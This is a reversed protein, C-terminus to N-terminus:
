NNLFGPADDIINEIMKYMHKGWEEDLSRKVWECLGEKNEKFIIPFKEHHDYSGLAFNYPSLGTYFNMMELTFYNIWESAGSYSGIM